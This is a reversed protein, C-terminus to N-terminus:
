CENFFVDDITSYLSDAIKRATNLSPCRSGSEIFQLYRKSIGVKQYFDDVTINLEERLKKVNNM